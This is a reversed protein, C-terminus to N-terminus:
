RGDLQDVYEGVQTSRPMREPVIQKKRNRKRSNRRKTGNMGQESIFSIFCSITCWSAWEHLDLDLGAEEGLELRGLRQGGGDHAQALEAVPLEVGERRIRHLGRELREIQRARADREDREDGAEAARAAGIEEFPPHVGVIVRDVDAPAWGMRRRGEDRNGEFHADEKRSEGREDAHERERS